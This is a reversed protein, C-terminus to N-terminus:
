PRERRAHVDRNQDRTRSRLPGPARLEDLSMTRLVDRVKTTEAGIDAGIRTLWWEALRKARAPLDFAFGTQRTHRPVLSTIEQASSFADGIHVTVSNQEFPNVSHAAHKNRFALLFDHVERLDLDILAPVDDRLSVRVGSAFCRAYAVSTATSLAEWDIFDVHTTFGVIDFPSKALHAGSYREVMRSSYEVVREMDAKMGMLSVLRAAAPLDVVYETLQSM